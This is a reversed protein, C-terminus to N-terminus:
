FPRNGNSSLKYANALMMVYKELREQLRARM